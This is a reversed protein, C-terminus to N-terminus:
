RWAGSLETVAICREIEQKKALADDARDFDGRAAAQKYREHANVYAFAVDQLLDRDARARSM